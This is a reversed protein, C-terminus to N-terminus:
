NIAISGIIGICVILIIRWLYLLNMFPTTRSAPTIVRIVFECTQTSNVDLVSDMTLTQKSDLGMQHRIAQLREYFDVFNSLDTVEPATSSPNTEDDEIPAEREVCLLEKTHHSKTAANIVPKIFAM